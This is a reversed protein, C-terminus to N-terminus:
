RVSSKRRYTGIRESPKVTFTKPVIRASSSPLASNSSLSRGGIEAVSARSARSPPGRAIKM